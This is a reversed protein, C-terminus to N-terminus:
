TTTATLSENIDIVLNTMGNGFNEQMELVLPIELEKLKKSKEDYEKLAERDGRAILPGLRVGLDQPQEIGQYVVEDVQDLNARIEELRGRVYTLGTVDGIVKQPLKGNELYYRGFENWNEPNPVGQTAYAASIVAALQYRHYPLKKSGSWIGVLELPKLTFPGAGEIAEALFASDGKRLEYVEETSLEGDYRTNLDTIRQSERDLVALIPHSVGIGSAANLVDERSFELAGM